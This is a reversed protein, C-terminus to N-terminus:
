PDVPPGDSGGPELQAAVLETLEGPPAGRLQAILLSALRAGAHQSDVAFTTLPPDVMRGEPIGDYSIISLDRGITLGRERAVDYAGLATADTSYVIATPPHPLDLLDRAAQAGESRDSIEMLELEPDFPLGAEELGERYGDRRLLAFNYSAHSGAFAIRRHGFGALRAVAARMAGEGDVDYWSLGPDPQGHGTRGFLVFPVHKAQLFKVRPDVVQTRPLIFGDVKHEQLLRTVTDEMEERSNSSAITLTWGELSAEQTIGGLFDTLFPGYRDPADLELVLGLARVRGTRVAQAYPMPAYGMEAAVRAVRERTEPSIDSYNNLARSVTSKTLGLAQALDSIRVRRPAPESPKKNTDRIEEM